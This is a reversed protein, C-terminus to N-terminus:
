KKLPYLREELTDEKQFSSVSTKQPTEYWQFGCRSCTRLIMKIEKQYEVSNRPFSKGTYGCVPCPSFIDFEQINLINEVQKFLLNFDKKSIKLSINNSKQSIIEIDSFTLIVDNEIYSIKIM